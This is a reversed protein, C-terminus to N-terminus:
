VNRGGPVQGLRFQLPPCWRLKRRRLHGARDARRASIARISVPGIFPACMIGKHKFPLELLLPIREDARRQNECTVNFIINDWGSGWDPPLCERVRQPRKTLLFFVVDARQRM